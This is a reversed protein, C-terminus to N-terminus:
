EVMDLHDPTPCNDVISRILLIGQFQEDDGTQESIACNSWPIVLLRLGRVDEADVGDRRDRWESSTSIRWFGVSLPAPFTRTTTRTLPKKGRPILIGSM